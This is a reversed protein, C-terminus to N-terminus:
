KLGQLISLVEAAAKEVGASEEALGKVFKNKEHTGRVAEFDAKKVEVGGDIGFGTMSQASFEKTADRSIMNNLKVTAEKWETVVKALAEASVSSVPVGHLREFLGAYWAWRAEPYGSHVAALEKALSALDAIAGSGVAKTLRGAVAAPIFLGSWDLWDSVDDRSVPALKRRVQDLSGLSKLASSGGLRDIVARGLAAKLGVEYYQICTKLMLRKLQIGNYGVFENKRDAKEYIDSLVKVAKEMRLVV